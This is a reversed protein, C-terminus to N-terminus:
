VGDLQDRSVYVVTASWGHEGDFNFNVDTVFIESDEEGLKNIATWMALEATTEFLNTGNFYHMKHLDADLRWNTKM